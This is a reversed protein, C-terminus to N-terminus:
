LKVKKQVMELVTVLDDSCGSHCDEEITQSRSLMTRPKTYFTLFIRPWVIYFAKGYRFTGTVRNEIM